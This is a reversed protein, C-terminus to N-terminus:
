SLVAKYFRFHKGVLYRKFIACCGVMEAKGMRLASAAALFGTGLLLGIAPEPVSQDSVTISAIQATASVYTGSADQGQIVIERQQWDSLFLISPIVGAHMSSIDSWTQLEVYAGNLTSDPLNATLSGAVNLNGYMVARFESHNTGTSTLLEPTYPFSSSIVSGGITVNTTPRIGDWYYLGISPYSAYPTAAGDISFTYDATAGVSIGNVTSNYITGHFDYKYVAASSTGCITSLFVTCLVQAIKLVIEMSDYRQRSFAHTQYLAESAVADGGGM